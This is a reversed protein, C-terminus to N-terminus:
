AAWIRRLWTLWGVRKLLAHTLVGIVASVGFMLFLATEDGGLFDESGMVAIAIALLAGVVFGPMLGAVLIAIVAVVIAMAVSSLRPEITLRPEIWRDYVLGVGVGYAVSVVLWVLLPANTRLLNSAVALIGVGGAVIFGALVNTMVPGPRPTPADDKVPTLQAIEQRAAALERRLEDLEARTVEPPKDPAKPDPMEDEGAPRVFHARIAWHIGL